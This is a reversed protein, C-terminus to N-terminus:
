SQHESHSELLALAKDYSCRELYHALRNDTSAPLANQIELIQESVRKLAELHAAPDNNRMEHNAILERRLHLTATLDSYLHHSVDM